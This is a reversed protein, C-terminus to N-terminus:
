NPTNCPGTDGTTPAPQPPVHPVWTPASRSLAAATLARISQRHLVLKAPTKMAPGHSHMRSAMALGMALSAVRGPNDLLM